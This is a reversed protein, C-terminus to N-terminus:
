STKELCLNSLCYAIKCCLCHAEKKRTFVKKIKKFISELKIKIRLCLDDEVPRYHAIVINPLIRIINSVEEIQMQRFLLKAKQQQQKYEPIDSLLHETM